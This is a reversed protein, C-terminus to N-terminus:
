KWCGIQRVFGRAKDLLQDATLAGGSESAATMAVGNARLFDSVAHKSIAFGVNDIVEGTKQYVAVTDVKMVVVGLVAGRDDLVPSGSNGRRVTGEFRFHPEASEIERPRAAVPRLEAVRVTLGHEPYGVVAYTGAVEAPPAFGAPEAIGGETQLLLLDIAPDGALVKAM